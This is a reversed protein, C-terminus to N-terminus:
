HGYLIRSSGQFLTAVHWLQVEKLTSFSPCVVPCLVKGSYVLITLNLYSSHRHLQSVWQTSEPVFYIMGLVTGKLFGNPCHVQPGLVHCYTSAQIPTVVTSESYIGINNDLQSGNYMPEKVEFGSAYCCLKCVGHFFSDGAKEVVSFVICVCM